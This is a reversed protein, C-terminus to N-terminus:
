DRAEVRRRLDPSGEIFFPEWQTMAGSVEPPAPDLGLRLTVQGWTNPQRKAPKGETPSFRWDRLYQLGVLDLLPDGSSRLIETRDVHGEPTLIFQLELEATAASERSRLRTLPVRSLYPALPPRSLLPRHRAPGRIWVPASTVQPVVTTVLHPIQKTATLLQPATQRLPTWPEPISAVAAPIERELQPPPVPLFETVVVTPPPTPALPPTLISGLSVIEAPPPPPPELPSAVSVRLVWFLALHLGVMSVGISGWLSRTSHM